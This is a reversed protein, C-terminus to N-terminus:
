TWTRIVTFTVEVNMRHQAAEQFSLLSAKHLRAM